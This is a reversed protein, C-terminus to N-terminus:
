MWNSLAPLPEDGSTKLGDGASRGSLWAAVDAPSGTVTVRAPGTGLGPVHPMGDIAFAVAPMEGTARPRDTILEHILRHTFVEPWDAPAYGLDLDVHHVEVERLRRWVLKAASGQAGFDFAWKDAPMAAIAEVLRGHTDRLDDIQEDKSRFAGDEIGQARAEPSPYAPTEVGTQAWTFLNHMADAQRSLHSLVHGRTWDPLRSPGGLQGESMAAVSAMLRTTALDLEPALALPDITVRDVTGTLPKRM